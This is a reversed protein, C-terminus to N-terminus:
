KWNCFPNKALEANSYRVDATVQEAVWPPLAYPETESQLEIEAVMLGENQGHFVDVEWKKGEYVCEYRTKEVVEFCLTQIMEEAEPLPIEYEFEARTAGTTKGKITLYGKHGKTRVRITKAADSYLYAQRILTGNTLGQKQWVEAHLLYKHEIELAM